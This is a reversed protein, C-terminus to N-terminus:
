PSTYRSGRQGKLPSRKLKKEKVLRSLTNDATGGRGERKWHANIEQTTAGGNKKILDLVSQDGSVAFKRRKRRHSSAPKTKSAGTSRPAASASAPGGLLRAIQGLTRDIAMIADAHRQRETMLGQVRSAISSPSASNNRPM